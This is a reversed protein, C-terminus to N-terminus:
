CEGIRSLAILQALPHSQLVSDLSASKKPQQVDAPNQAELTASVQTTDPDNQVPLPCSQEVAYVMESMVIVHYTASESRCM